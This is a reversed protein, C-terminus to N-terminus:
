FTVTTRVLFLGWRRKPSPNINPDLDATGDIFHGELKWLWYDNVDFRLSLALDRQFANSRIPFRQADHGNRDHPDLYLHSYYAGLEFLSSFRYTVMGYFREADEHLTPIAAPLSNTQHKLWRSYEAAFLWRGIIYEASGTWFGTPNQSILLNGDYDAPVLNAAVLQPILGSEITLHFDIVARLYSAGVRLGEVPPRWFLQGGTVYKTDVSKLEANKLELASVPITLTGIWAQYELTGLVDIPITGYLAFGIHSILADRNRIPYMSQPLLIATRSADIDVYENYLGLPLKIVGARMGLWQFARFDLFGWDLRPTAESVVGVTRSVLQIGVHLRDTLDTSVNVGAEFFKLSGRASAGIYDNATSVFGGESAFGHVQMSSIFRPVTDAAEAHSAATPQSAAAAPALAEARPQEGVTPPLSTPGASPSPASTTSTPQASPEAAASSSASAEPAGAPAKADSVQAEASDAFVVAWLCFLTAGIRNVRM